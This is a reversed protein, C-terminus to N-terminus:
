AGSEVRKKLGRLAASVIQKEGQRVIFGPVRFTPEVRLAYTVVTKGDTEKFDYSGTLMEVDGGTDAEWSMFTPHTHTYTLTYRIEKVIGELTFSARIPRGAEDREHVVVTRVGSAWEPYTEIDQAVAYVDEASADVEITEYMGRTM